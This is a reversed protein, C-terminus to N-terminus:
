IAKFLDGTLRLGWLCFMLFFNVLRRVRREKISRSSFNRTIKQNEALFEKLTEKSSKRWNSFVRGVYRIFGRLISLFNLDKM